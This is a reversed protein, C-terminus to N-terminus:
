KRNNLNWPFTWGGVKNSSSHSQHVLLSLSHFPPDVHEEEEKNRKESSDVVGKATFRGFNVMWRSEDM